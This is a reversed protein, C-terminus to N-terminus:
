DGQREIERRLAILGERPGARLDLPGPRAEWCRVKAGSVRLAAAFEAVLFRCRERLAAIHV